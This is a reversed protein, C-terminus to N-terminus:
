SATKQLALKGGVQFRSYGLELLASCSNGALSMCERVGGLLLHRGFCSPLGRPLPITERGRWERVLIITSKM